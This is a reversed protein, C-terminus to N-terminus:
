KDSEAFIVQKLENICNEPSIAHEEGARGFYNVLIEEAKFLVTRQQSIDRLKRSIATLERLLGSPDIGASYLENLSQALSESSFTGACAFPNRVSVGESKLERVIRQVREPDAKLLSRYKNQFRLMAKKDGGGMELAISRVSRGRATELLIRRLLDDSEQPSFPVFATKGSGTEERMKLYYYNRISNPKRGTKLAIKEFVSKIPIGAELASHAESMLASTETESWGNARKTAQEM